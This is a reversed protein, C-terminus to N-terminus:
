AQCVGVRETAHALGSATKLTISGGGVPKFYDKAHAAENRPVLDNGNGAAVWWRLVAVPVGDPRM